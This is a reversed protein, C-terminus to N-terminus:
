KKDWGWARKITDGVTERGRERRGERIHKEAEFHEHVVAAYEANARAEAAILQIEIEREAPTKNELSQELAKRKEGTYMDLGERAPQTEPAPREGLAETTSKSTILPKFEPTPLKQAEAAKTAEERDLMEHYLKDAHMQIREEEDATRQMSLYGLAKLFRSQMTYCRNFARTETKCLMLKAKMGGSEFCEHEAWQELACNELAARGIRAKRDNYTDIVDALRESESRGAQEIQEQPRYNKWLHAYRGDQYLSQTPVGNEDKPPQTSQSPDDEAIGIQSRYSSTDQPLQTPQQQQQQQRTKSEKDLFERLSPDLSNLADKSESNGNNNGWFWGMKNSIHSSPLHSPPKSRGRASRIPWQGNLIFRAKVSRSYMGLYVESAFIDSVIQIM